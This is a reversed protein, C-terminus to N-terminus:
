NKSDVYEAVLTRRSPEPNYPNGEQKYKAQVFNAWSYSLKYLRFGLINMPLDRHSRLQLYYRYIGAVLDQPHKGMEMNRTLSEYLPQEGLPFFFKKIPIKIEEGETTLARLELYEYTEPQFIEAYMPYNSFPFAEFQFFGALLSGGLVVIMVFFPVRLDTM